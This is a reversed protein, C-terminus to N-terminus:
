LETMSTTIVDADRKAEAPNKHIMIHMMIQQKELFFRLYAIIGIIERNMAHNRASIMIFGITQRTLGKSSNPKSINTEMGVVDDNGDPWVADDNAAAYEM